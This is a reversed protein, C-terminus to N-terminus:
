RRSPALSIPHGPLPLDPRRLGTRADLVMLARAEPSGLYLRDDFLEAAVVRSPLRAILLLRGSILDLRWVTDQQVLFVSRGDPAPLLRSAHGSLAHEGLVDLTLPDLVVVRSREPAPVPDGAGGSRELVYLAAPAGRGGPVLRLDVPAGELPRSGVVVGSPLAVAVLRGAGIESGSHSGELGFYAFAARGAGEVQLDGGPEFAVSRPREDARCPGPVVQSEGGLLDVVLLPCRGGAAESATWALAGAGPRQQYIVVAYRQGDTALRALGSTELDGLRGGAAPAEAADRPRVFELAMRGGGSRDATLAVVSDGPGAALEEPAGALASGRWRPGAALWTVAAPGAMGVALTGGRGAAGRDPPVCAAVPLTLLTLGLGLSRGLTLRM